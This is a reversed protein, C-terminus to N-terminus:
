HWAKTHNRIATMAAGKGMSVGLTFAQVAVEGIVGAILLADQETKSIGQHVMFELADSILKTVRESEEGGVPVAEENNM